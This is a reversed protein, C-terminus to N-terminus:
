LATVVCNSVFLENETPQLIVQVHYKEAYIYNIIYFEGEFERIQNQILRSHLQKKGQKIQHSYPEFSKIFQEKTATKKSKPSFKSWMNDYNDEEISDIFYSAKLTADRLSKGNEKYQQAKEEFFATFYDSVEKTYSMTSGSLKLSLKVAKETTETEYQIGNLVTSDTLNLKEKMMTAHDYALVDSVFQQNEELTPFPDIEGLLITTEFNCSSISVILLIFLTIQKKM